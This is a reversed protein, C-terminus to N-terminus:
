VDKTGSETRLSDMITDEYMAVQSWRAWKYRALATCKKPEYTHQNLWRVFTEVTDLDSSPFSYKSAIAGNRFKVKHLLGRQVAFTTPRTSGVIFRVHNNSGRKSSNRDLTLM